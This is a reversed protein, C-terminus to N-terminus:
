KISRSRNKLRLESARERRRHTEEEQTPEIGSYAARPNRVERPFGVKERRVKAMPRETERKKQDM